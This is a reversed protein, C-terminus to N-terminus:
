LFIKLAGFIMGILIVLGGVVKGGGLFKDRWSELKDTKKEVTALRGNLKKVDKHMNGVDAILTAQTVRTQTVEGAMTRIVDELKNTIQRTEEGM